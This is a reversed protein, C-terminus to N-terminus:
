NVSLMLTTKKLGKVGKMAWCGLWVVEQEVISGRLLWPMVIKFKSFGQSLM